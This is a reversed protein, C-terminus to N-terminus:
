ILFSIFLYDTYLFYASGVFFVLYFRCCSPAVFHGNQLMVASAAVSSM